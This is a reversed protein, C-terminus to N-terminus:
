AAPLRTLSSKSLVVIWRLLSRRRWRRGARHIVESHPSLAPRCAAVPRTLRWISPRGGGLYKEDGVIDWLIEGFALLKM